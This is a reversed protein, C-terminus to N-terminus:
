PHTSVASIHTAAGEVLGSAGLVRGGLKGRLDLVEPAAASVPPPSVSALRPAGPSVRGDSTGGETLNSEASSVVPRSESPTSPRSLLERSHSGQQRLSSDPRPARSSPRLSGALWNEGPLVHRFGRRRSPAYASGGGVANPDDARMLNSDDVIAGLLGDGDRESDGHDSGAVFAGNAEAPGSPAFAPDLGLGGDTAGFFALPGAPCMARMDGLVLQSLSAGMASARSSSAARVFPSDNRGGGLEGESRKEPVGSPVAVARPLPLPLPLGKDEIGNKAGDVGLRRSAALNRAPPSPCPSGGPSSGPSSLVGGEYVTAEVCLVTHFTSGASGAGLRGTPATRAGDLLTREPEGAAVPPVDTGNQGLAAPTNSGVWANRKKAPCSDLAVNAEGDDGAVAAASPTGQGCPDSYVRIEGGSSLALRRGCGSWAGCARKRRVPAPLVMRNGGPGLVAAGTDYWAALPIAGDGSRMAAPVGVSGGACPRFSLCRVNRAFSSLDQGGGNESAKAPAATRGKSRMGDGDLGQNVSATTSNHGGREGCDGDGRKEPAHWDTLVQAVSYRYYRRHKTGRDESAGAASSEQECWSVRSVRWLLVEPGCAVAIHCVKEG